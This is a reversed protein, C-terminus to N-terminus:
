VYDPDTRNSTQCQDISEKRNFTEGTGQLYHLCFFAVLVHSEIRKRLRTVTIDRFLPEPIAYFGIEDFFRGFILEPGLTRIQANWLTRVFDLVVANSHEDQPFLSYQNSQRTIFLKGLELLRQVEDPDDSSGITKVVRYGNSKDIVQVSVSGSKNPKKRVFM